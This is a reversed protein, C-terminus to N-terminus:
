IIYDQQEYNEKNFFRTIEEKPFKNKAYNVSLCVFEVNGKLYGKSSDIRDLSAHYPNTKKNFNMINKTYPCIAKQNIWLERLYYCDIDTVWNKEITINNIRKLVRWLGVHHMYNCKEDFQKKYFEKFKISNRLRLSVEIKKEKTLNEFKILNNNFLYSCKNNCFFKNKNLKLRRNYEKKPKSVTKGCTNCLVDVINM